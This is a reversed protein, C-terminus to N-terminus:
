LPSRPHPINVTQGDILVGTIRAVQQLAQRETQTYPTYVEGHEALRALHNGLSNAIAETESETNPLGLEIVESEVATHLQEVGVDAINTVAGLHAQKGLYDALGWAPRGVQKAAEKALEFGFM